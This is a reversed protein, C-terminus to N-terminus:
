KPLIKFIGLYFYFTALHLFDGLRTVRSTVTINSNQLGQITCFLQKLRRTKDGRRFGKLDGWNKLPVVLPLKYWVKAFIIFSFINLFLQALLSINLVLPVSVAGRRSFRSM